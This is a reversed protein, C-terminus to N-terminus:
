KMTKWACCLFSWQQVARKSMRPGNQRDIHVFKAPLAPRRLHANVSVRYGLLLLSVLNKLVANARSTTTISVCRWQLCRYPMKKSQSRWVLENHHLLVDLARPAQGVEQYMRIFRKHALEKHEKHWKTYACHIICMYIGCLIDHNISWNLNFHVM